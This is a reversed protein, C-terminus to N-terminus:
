YEVEVLAGVDRYDIEVQANGSDSTGMRVPGIVITDDESFRLHGDGVGNIEFSFNREDGQLIRKDYVLRDRGNEKISSIQVRVSLQRGSDIFQWAETAEIVYPRPWLMYAVLAVIVLVLPVAVIGLRKWRSRRRAPVASQEPQTPRAPDQSDSIRQESTSTSPALIMATEDRLGLLSALRGIEAQTLEMRLGGQWKPELLHTKVLDFGIVAGLTGSLGVCSQVDIKSNPNKCPYLAIFKRIDKWAAEDRCAAQRGKEVFDRHNNHLWSRLTSYQQVVQQAPNHGPFEVGDSRRWLGNSKGFVAFSASHKLEVISWAKGHIVLIDIQKSDKGAGVTFNALIDFAGAESSLSSALEKIASQEYGEVPTDGIWIRVAM